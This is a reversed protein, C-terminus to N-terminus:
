ELIPPRTQLIGDEKMLAEIEDLETPIFDTFNEVGEETVVVTDEMRIYLREDHVWLMPDVTFVIGPILPKGKYSGVDHVAM